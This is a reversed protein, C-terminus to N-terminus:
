PAPTPAPTPSPQPAPQPAPQPPLTVQINPHTSNWLAVAKDAGPTWSWFTLKVPGTSTSASGTSTSGGCAALSVMLVFVIVVISLRPALHRVRLFSSFFQM